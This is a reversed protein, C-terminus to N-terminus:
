GRHGVHHGNCDPCYYVHCKEREYTFAKLANRKTIATREVGVCGISCTANQCKVRWMIGHGSLFRRVDLACKCNQCEPRTM